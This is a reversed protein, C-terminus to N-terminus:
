EQRAVGETNFRDLMDIAVKCSWKVITADHKNGVIDSKSVTKKFFHRLGRALSPNEKAKTLMRAIAQEDREGKKGKQCAVLATVFLVELFTKTKAQLMNFNLNKFVEVGMVNDGILTGFLKALNVIQRMNLSEDEDEDEGDDGGEGEGMRKFLDWLSFQFSTRLKRDSCVKQSILTYYPNYTKEAGACHLLVKPIEYEQVKKLKLKTLRQYADTYDEASMIAVFIARRIDTNM